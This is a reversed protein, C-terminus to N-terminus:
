QNEAMRDAMLRLDTADVQHDGNLDAALLPQTFPEDGHVINGALYNQLIVLSMTTFSGQGDLDGVSYTAPDPDATTFEITRGTYKSASYAWADEMQDYYGQRFTLTARYTHSALLPAYPWHSTQTEEFLLDEIKRGSVVDTVQLRMSNVLPDAPVNWRLDVDMPVGTEGHSPQLFLPAEAPQLLPDTTGPVGFWYEKDIVFGSGFDLFLRYGGDAFDSFDLTTGTGAVISWFDNGNDALPYEAQTPTRIWVAQVPFQMQRLYAADLSVTFRPEGTASAGLYDLGKELQFDLTRGTYTFIGIEGEPVHYSAGDAVEESGIRVTYDGAGDEDWVEGLAPIRYKVTWYWHDDSADYRASGVDELQAKENYGNPGTVTLDSDDLTSEDILGNDKYTVSFIFDAEGTDPEQGPELAAGPPEEDIRPVLVVPRLVGEQQYRSYGAIWGAENIDYANVITSGYPRCYRSLDIPQYHVGDWTWLMAGGACHGVIDGHNNINYALGLKNYTELVEPAYGPRWLIPRDAEPLSLNRGFGVVWGSQNIGYAGSYYIYGPPLPLVQLSSQNGKIPRNEWEVLIAGVFEGSENMDFWHDGGNVDEDSLQLPGGPAGWCVVRWLGGGEPDSLGAVQGSSNVALAIGMYYSGSWNQHPQDDEDDALTGLDTWSRSRVDYIFPRDSTPYGNEWYSGVGLGSDSLGNAHPYM